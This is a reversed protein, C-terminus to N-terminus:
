AERVIIRMGHKKYVRVPSNPAIFEGETSVDIIDEAFQAKGSPRLASVSRGFDGVSIRAWPTVMDAEKTGEAPRTETAAEFQPPALVLRKFMPLGQFFDAAFFLVVMVGALAAIVTLFNMGLDTWDAGTSPIFVRRSAMVLSFLLLGGGTIGAM